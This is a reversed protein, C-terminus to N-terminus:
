SAAGSRGSEDEGAAEGHGVVAEAIVLDEWSMGTTKVVIPRKAPLPVGGVVDGMAHLSAADLAGEAVALVVDGAERLATAPDEVVVQARAMLASDLERADPEHSGVAIVIADDRLTSSDFLPTRATTACIVLGAGSLAARVEGSAAASARTGAPLRDPDRVVTTVEGLERAGALLARLTEFHAVAQPGAGFVVVDLPDQRHRIPDIIPAFSVAPTRVITLAAGDLLASPTLTEADALLYLGQIRPLGRSPNGPAVTLVKIGTSRGADSPMLLFEGQRLPVSSRPIDSSPAFGARLAGRIAEVAATADLASHVATADFYPLTRM